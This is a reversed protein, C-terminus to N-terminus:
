RFPPTVRLEYRDLPRDAQRVLISSRLASVLTSIEARRATSALCGITISKVANNSISLFGNDVKITDPWTAPASREEAVLRWEREYAWQAAKTLLEDAGAADVTWAPYVSVYKVPTAMNFPFVNADFEICIGSHKDAYHSWMLTSEPDESLCFVRYKNNIAANMDMSFQVHFQKLRAPDRMQRAVLAERQSETRQPAFKRDKALLWGWLRAEEASGKAPAAYHVHCDWPDNFGSPQSFYIRGESLLGRLHDENFRQYHFLSRM